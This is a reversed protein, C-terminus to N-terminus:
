RAADSRAPGSAPGVKIEMSRSSGHTWHVLAYAAVIALMVGALVWAVLRVGRRADMCERRELSDVLSRVNRLARRELDRQADDNRVSIHEM